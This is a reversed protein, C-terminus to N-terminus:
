QRIARSIHKMGWALTLPVMSAGLILLASAVPMAPMLSPAPMWAQQACTQTATDVEVCYLVHAVQAEGAM